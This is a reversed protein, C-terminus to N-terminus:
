SSDVRQRFCSASGPHFYNRFADDVITTGFFDQVQGIVRVISSLREEKFGRHARAVDATCPCPELRTNIQQGINDDQTLAWAECALRQVFQRALKKLIRLPAQKIIRLGFRGVATLISSLLSRKKTDTMSASSVGVEVVVPSVSDEYNQVTPLEPITVEAEGDNLLNSVLTALVRWEGTDIDLERLTIDVTYTSYDVLAHDMYQQVHMDHTVLMYLLVEILPGEM